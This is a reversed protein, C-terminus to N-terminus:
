IKWVRMVDINWFIWKIFSEKLNNEEETLVPIARYGNENMMNLAQEGSDDEKCFIVQQKPLFHYKVRLIREEECSSM